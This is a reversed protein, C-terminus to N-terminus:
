EEEKIVKDIVLRKFDKILMDRDKILANNFGQRVFPTAKIGFKFIKKNIPYALAEKIGKTRCWQKIASVPAYKGPLRGKEVYIAYEPASLQMVINDAIEVFKFNLNRILNGTNMKKNQILIKIMEQIVDEGFQNLVDDNIEIINGM